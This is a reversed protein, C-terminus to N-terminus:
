VRLRIPTNLQFEAAPVQAYQYREPLAFRMAYLGQVRTTTMFPETLGIEGPESPPLYDLNIGPNGGTSLFQFRIEFYFPGTKPVVDDKAFLVPYTPSGALGLLDLMGDQVRILGGNEFASWRTSDLAQGDFPDHF